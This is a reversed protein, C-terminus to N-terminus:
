RRVDHDREPAAVMPAAHRGGTARLHMGLAVLWLGIALYTPHFWSLARLVAIQGAIWGVLAVGVVVAALGTRRDGSGALWALLSLPIAVAMALALGAVARSDWPLRHDLESGFSLGGGVLGVAGFWALAANVVAIWLITSRCRDM